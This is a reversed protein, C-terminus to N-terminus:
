IISPASPVITQTPATQDTHDIMACGALQWAIALLVLSYMPQMPSKM